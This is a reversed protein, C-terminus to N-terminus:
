ILYPYISHYSVDPWLKPNNMWSDFSMKYPYKDLGVLAIKNRYRRLADYEFSLSRFRVAQGWVFMAAENSVFYCSQSMM